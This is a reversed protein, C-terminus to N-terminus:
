KSQLAILLKQGVEKASAPNQGTILRQDTVVHSQWLGSKEFIAGREILKSELLFPVVHTLGVAEEEENTFANGKKGHVLYQGNNLKINIIGAPGHCVASM